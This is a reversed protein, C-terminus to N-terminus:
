ALRVAERMAHKVAVQMDLYNYTALRGLFVTKDERALKDYLSWIRGGEKFSRMPYYPVDYPGCDFSNERVVISPGSEREPHLHGYDVQRTWHRERNCENLQLYPTREDVINKTFRLSRYPLHGHAYQFYSDLKGTYIVVDAREDKWADCSSGLRVEIGRAMETFLNTYGRVPIGCYKDTHYGRLSGVRRTPVRKLIAEPIEHWERGWQKESYDRYVEERIREDSWEGVVEASLDTFPVPIIRGDRLRGSIEPNMQRFDAFRSMFEWVSDENTHFFHPGHEHVYGLEQNYSDFCNGGIVEREEFVIVRHGSDTLIRAPVLGSIGAGVIVVKM